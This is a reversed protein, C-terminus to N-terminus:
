LPQVVSYVLLCNLPYLHKTNVVLMFIFISINFKTNFRLTSGITSIPLAAVIMIMIFFIQSIMNFTSSFLTSPVLGLLTTERTCFPNSSNTSTIFTKALISNRTSSTFHPFMVGYIFGDRLFFQHSFPKNPPFILSFTAFFRTQYVV